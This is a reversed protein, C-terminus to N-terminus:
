FDIWLEQRVGRLDMEFALESVPPHAFHWHIGRAACAGAPRLITDVVYPEVPHVTYVNIATVATWEVKLGHLRAQMAQMVVAAKERLADPTHEGRRVIADPALHAQDRLDGAGAVVFTPPGAVNRSPMTYSFAHLSPEAVGHVAPAVNTRSLPNVDKLLLDHRALHQRYEWNFAAFQAFSVPAPSRLEVGCLAAAPRDRAALHQISQDIGVLCPM